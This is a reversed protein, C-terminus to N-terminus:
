EYRLALAPERRSALLAPYLAAGAAILLIVLASLGLAPITVPWDVQKVISLLPVQIALLSGILIGACGIVLVELLIQSRVAGTSAGAARRVGIEQTRRVVDQWVIGILGLAVMALLFVALTAGIRFPLLAYVHNADRLEEWPTIAATYGSAATRVTTVIQEELRRDTGPAVKVFLDTPVYGVPEERLIVYPMGEAFEGDQRFDDIVGVVRIERGAEHIEEPSLHAIAKPDQPPFFNIRQGIPSRGSSLVHDVFYRNVLAAHYEQGEDEPGFMRGEVVRVGLDGLGAASLWNQKVFVMRGPPGLLGISWLGTFPTGVISHAGAVGPLLRIAALIQDRSARTEKQLMHPDAGLGDNTVSVRWINEYAFGLPRRYNNWANLSLAFVVFLVLFAAAVEAAVLWNARRRNWILRLIHTVV